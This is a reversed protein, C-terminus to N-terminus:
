IESTPLFSFLFLYPTRLESARVIWELHRTRTDSVRVCLSVRLRVNSVPTLATDTIELLNSVM